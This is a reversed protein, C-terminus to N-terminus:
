ADVVVDSVQFSSYAATEYLAFDLQAAHRAFARWPAYVRESPGLYALLELATEYKVGGQRALSLADDILAARQLPPFDGHREKLAASLSKWTADDYNM